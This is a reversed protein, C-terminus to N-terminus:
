GIGRRDQRAFPPSGLPPRRGVGADAVGPAQVRQDVHYKALCDLAIGQVEQSKGPTGRGLGTMVGQIAGQM